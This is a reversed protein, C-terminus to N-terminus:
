APAGPPLTSPGAALIREVRQREDAGLFPLARLVEGARIRVWWEPDKLLAMLTAVDAPRAARAVAALARLRVFWTEHALYPRAADAGAEGELLRLCAAIIRPSRSQRLRVLVLPQLTAHPVLASVALLRELHEEPATVIGQTLWHTAHEAGADDLIKQLYNPAWDDRSALRPMLVPMARGADIRVLAHAAALSVMPDRADVLAELDPWFSAHRLHGAAVITVLRERGPHRLLGRVIRPLELVEAVEVLRSRVEGQLSEQLQTWLRILLYSDVPDLPPLPAAPDLLRQTLATRWRGLFAAERRARRRRRGRLLVIFVLVAFTM